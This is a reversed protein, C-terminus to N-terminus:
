TPTTSICRVVNSGRLEYSFCGVTAVLPPATRVEADALYFEYTWRRPDDAAVLGNMYSRWTPHNADFDRGCGLRVYFNTYDLLAQELPIVALASVREACAWQLDFFERRFLM